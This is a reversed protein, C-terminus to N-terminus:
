EEPPRSPQRRLDIEKLKRLEETLEHIKNDREEVDSKLRHTMTNFDKALQAFEDNRSTDLRYFFKGEAIARTGATLHALPTSISKYIFFSVFASGVLAIAAAYWSILRAMEGTKRSEDVASAIASRSAEYVTQAQVQLRELDEQLDAPFDRVKVTGPQQRALDTNFARWHEVLRSIETQEAPSSATSKIRQLATEFEEQHGKLQAVYDPDGLALAKRTYEEVLDRDRILQLCSVATNFNVRSLDRNISQMRHITIVDYTVLAALLAILIGYGTILRTTIKM